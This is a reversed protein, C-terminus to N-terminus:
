REPRLMRRLALLAAFLVAAVPWIIWTRAWHGTYFSSGLYIATILCWYFGTFPDNRQNEAKHERTYDGEELLKEYSEWPCAM